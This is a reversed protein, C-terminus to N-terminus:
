SPDDLTITPTTHHPTTYSRRLFLGREERRGAGVHIHPLPLEGAARAFGGSLLPSFVAEILFNYFSVFFFSSSHPHLKLRLIWM